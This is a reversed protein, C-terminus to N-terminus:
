YNLPVRWDLSPTRHSLKFIVPFKRKHESKRWMEVIKNVKGLSMNLEHAIESENMWHELGYLILDLVNYSVGIESEDTQGKWLGASPNKQIIEEPIGLHRALHRVQTKYLDGIPLIDSAGDGFKTFYGVLIESKNSSGVVLRRLNNAYYYLTVMRIRAKVNGVVTPSDTADKPFTNLYADVISTIDVIEYPIKFQEALKIADKADNPDSDREPLMLGLLKDSGLAKVCLAATVSSDVGGSLGIVVGSFGTGIVRARIFKLIREEVFESDIKLVEASLKM